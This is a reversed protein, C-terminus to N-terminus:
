IRVGETQYGCRRKINMKNLEKTASFTRPRTWRQATGPIHKAKRVDKQTQEAKGSIQQLM